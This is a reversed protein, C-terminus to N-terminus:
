YFNKYNIKKVNKRHFRFESFYYYSFFIIVAFVICLWFLRDSFFNKLRDLFLLIGEAQVENSTVLVATGIIEGNYLIDVGGVIM